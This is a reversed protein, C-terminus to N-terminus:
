AVKPPAEKFDVYPMRDVGEELISRRVRRGLETLAHIHPPTTPYDPELIFSVWVAPDGTADDGLELEFSRVGPPLAAKKLLAQIRRTEPSTGGM